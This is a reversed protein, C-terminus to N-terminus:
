IQSLNCTRLHRRAVRHEIGYTRNIVRQWLEAWHKEHPDSIGAAVCDISNTYFMFFHSSAPSDHLDNPLNESRLRQFETLLYEDKSIYGSSIEVKPNISLNPDMIKQRLPSLVRSVKLMVRNRYDVLDITTELGSVPFRCLRFLFKGSKPTPLELNAIISANYRELKKPFIM